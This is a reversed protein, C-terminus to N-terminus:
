VSPETHDWRFKTGGLNPMHKKTFDCRFNPVRYANIQETQLLWCVSATIFFDRMHSVFCRKVLASLLVSVVTPHVLFEGFGTKKQCVSFIM